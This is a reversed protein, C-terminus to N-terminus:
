IKAVRIFVTQTFSPALMLLFDFNQLHKMMESLFNSYNLSETCLLTGSDGPRTQDM